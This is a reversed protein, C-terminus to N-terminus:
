SPQRPNRYIYPRPYVMGQTPRLKQQVQPYNLGASYIQDAVPKLILHTPTTINHDPIGPVIIGETVEDDIVFGTGLQDQAWAIFRTISTTPVLTDNTNYWFAIRTKTQYALPDALDDFNPYSEYNTRQWYPSAGLQNDIDSNTYKDIIAQAELTLPNEASNVLDMPGVVNLMARPWYGTDAAMEFASTIALQGGASGGTVILGYTAVYRNLVQWTAQNVGSAYGPVALFKLLEVLQEINNPYYGDGRPAACPTPDPDPDPGLLDYNASLVLYNGEDALLICQPQDQFNPDATSGFCLYNSANIAKDGGAWGGGHLWLIVGKPDPGTQNAFNYTSPEYVDVRSKPSAGYSIDSYIQAM